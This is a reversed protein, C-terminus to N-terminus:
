RKNRTSLVPCLFTSLQTIPLFTPATSKPSLQSLHVSDQRQETEAHKLVDLPRHRRHMLGHRPFTAEYNDATTHIYLQIDDAYSHGGIGRHAAIIFVDATCLLFLIPGLVTCEGATSWLPSCLVDLVPRRCPGETHTWHHFKYNV